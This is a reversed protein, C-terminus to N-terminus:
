IAKLQSNIGMSDSRGREAANPRPPKQRDQRLPSTSIVSPANGADVLRAWAQMASTETCENEKSM